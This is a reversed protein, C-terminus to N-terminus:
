LISFIGSPLASSFFSSAGAKAASRRPVRIVFSSTINFGSNRVDPAKRRHKRAEENIRCEASTM